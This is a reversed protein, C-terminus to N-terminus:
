TGNQMAKRLRVTALAHALVAVLFYIGATALPAPPDFAYDAAAVHDYVWGARLIDRHLAAEVAAVPNVLLYGQILRAPDDMTLVRANLVFPAGVCAGALLM